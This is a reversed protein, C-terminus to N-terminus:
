RKLKEIYITEGFSDKFSACYAIGTPSLKSCSEYFPDLKAVFRGTKESYAYYNNWYHMGDSTTGYLVIVYGIERGTSTFAMAKGWYRIYKEYDSDSM